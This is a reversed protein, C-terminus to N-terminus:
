LHANVETAVEVCIGIHGYAIAPMKSFPKLKSPRFALGGSREIEDDIEDDNADSM